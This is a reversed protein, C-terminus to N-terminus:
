FIKTPSKFYDQSVTWRGYSIGWREKLMGYVTSYIHLKRIGGFICSLTKKKSKGSTCLKIGMLAVGMGSWGLHEEGWKVIIRGGGKYYKQSQQRVLTLANTSIFYM